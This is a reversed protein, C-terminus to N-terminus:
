HTPLWREIVKTIQELSHRSFAANPISVSYQPLEALFRHLVAPTFQELFCFDGMNMSRLFHSNMVQEHHDREPLALVPKGLTISEGILQNGAAAVVATCDALDAVFASRSISQFSINRFKADPEVGYLRVPYGCTDLIEMVQQPTHRRLYCLLFGQNSSTTSLMDRRIVTGVQTVNSLGRKLLDTRFFASVIYHSCRPVFFRCVFFSAMSARFRTLIPLKDLQYFRMFHQHDISLCPIRLMAAARPLCPEFDVITLDAHFKQLEAVIRRAIVDARFLIFLAGGVYSSLSDIRGNKYHYRPGNIIHVKISRSSQPICQLLYELGEGYGFLIITHESILEEILAAVRTAHGRGEGCFSIALRAM